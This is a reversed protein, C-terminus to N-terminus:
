SNNSHTLDIHLLAILDHQFIRRSPEHIAPPLPIHRHIPKILRLLPIQSTSKKVKKKRKDNKKRNEVKM